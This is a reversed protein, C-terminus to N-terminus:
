KALDHLLETQETHELKGTNYAPAERGELVLWGYLCSGGGWEM